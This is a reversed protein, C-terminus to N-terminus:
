RGFFKGLDPSAEVVCSVADSDLHSVIGPLELHYKHVLHRIDRMDNARQRSMFAAM